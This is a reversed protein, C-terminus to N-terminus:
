VLRATGKIIVGTTDCVHPVWRGQWSKWDGDFRIIYHDGYAIVPQDALITETTTIDGKMRTAQKADGELAAKFEDLTWVKAVTIGPISPTSRTWMPQGNEDVVRGALVAAKGVSLQVTGNAYGVTYAKHGVLDSTSATTEYQNPWLVFTTQGNADTEQSALFKKQGQRHVRVVAGPVPHGSEDVVSVTQVRPVQAILAAQTRYILVSAEAQTVQRGGGLSGDPYGKM